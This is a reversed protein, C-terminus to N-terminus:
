AQMQGSRMMLKIRNMQNVESAGADYDLAIFNAHPYRRKLERMLGKAVVHNPLCGFPQVCLINGVGSELMRVMEAGLLWGEGCQQGLSILNKTKKRLVRFSSPATFRRSRSFALRLGLRTLELFAIGLMAMRADSRRGALHRYNFIDDYLCYMAFDMIDTSVVEGGEEEIVVAARNNADPHYKLLIEGVIGVRRRRPEDRLAIRDFDRIMSFMNWEFRFINGSLVNEKARELWLNALRDVSGAEAEYPRTRNIMRALADGYHGAMIMRFLMARTMRLGPGQIGTAFSLIPVSGLGADVMAKRLLSAYNTARCGGGTQSIVLAIREKDWGGKQVAQLLQGIVIIAPYCADNNVYRLGLAIAEQDVHPLLVAKYGAGRFVSEALSFHLPSLQPILLTHTERMAETFYPSDVAATQSPCATQVKERKERLAAILSRIRIRAPGINTGEDLKIQAYLRGGGRVIEELQDSTIADLGCGFSLLQLVAINPYTLAATGARYLRAHYAWQNVVRLSVPENASQALSDETLVSVGLSAILDAIGHHIEPDIHYPHGALVIGLKEGDALTALIEEGKARVDAHYRELELFGEHVAEELEEIPIDAFFPEEHMRLALIERSLPLFPCVYRVTRLAAINNRLLEPYGAVVPCNFTGSTLGANEKERPLCPFFITSVGQEILNMIHGHSLKAPYCVTQSPITAYGAYYLTKSSQASLVVRFGLKTLLTFWLPYDEYMNLTRPIGITGRPGETLPTYSFVREYKWAYMNPASGESEGRGRECRNGSIFRGGDPFTSVTLLCANSCRKCRTVRTRVSFAALEEPSLLRSVANAESRRRVLLAMGLAGMLGPISPRVVNRGLEHELARLLADNAFAGGQAVVHEGLQAINSIKMVKYCANRIVAYSLGAAIDGLSAGEKQAQKVRSNMFVTCRTGLDVPNKASLAAEVFDQLPIHLSDAFNEIFSGCGSSCAENLAISDIANDKIRMCKIDQGGIDLVFTVSPDFFAAAAAHAVTEVEDCDLHLARTLLGSGYGTAGAGRIVLDDNKRAYIERLIALASALPDGRNQSYYSYLLEGAESVLVAKITTSGSDFGLWASGHADELLATPLGEKRHRDLFATREAQSAFLPVLRATENKNALTLLRDRIDCLPEPNKQGSRASLAAGLAVFYQADDPFVAERMHALTACFRKRLYPLFALPGGLFVVKGAITRGQALGSITQNVVAQLVSAAIDEKTAGENLLPLIDMRAFVGCRSAIPYITKSREALDNLGQADTGLFAGMQDIFAGTGGACTENMRQEVGGSLFTLKADEGGLEIVVDADPIREEIALHSSLVEQLFPLGLAKALSIGGSGTICLVCSPMPVAALLDTLVSLTTGRVDSVHRTYRRYCVAGTGDLVLVKVTTSGIDLGISYPSSM